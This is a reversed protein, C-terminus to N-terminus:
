FSDLTFQLSFDSRNLDLVLDLETNNDNVRECWGGVKVCFATVRVHSVNESESNKVNFIERMVLVVMAGFPFFTAAAGNPDLDVLVALALFGNISDM